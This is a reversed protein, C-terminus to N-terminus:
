GDIYKVNIVNNLVDFGTVQFCSDRKLLYEKENWHRRDINFLSDMDIYKTGKPVEIKLIPNNNTRFRCAVNYDTTTSIFSKDSYIGGKTTLIDKDAESLDPQLARYLVIDDQTRWFKNENEFINDLSQVLGELMQSTNFGKVRDHRLFNHLEQVSYKYEKLAKMDEPSFYKKLNGEDDYVKVDGTQNNLIFISSLFGNSDRLCKARMDDYCLNTFGEVPRGIQIHDSLHRGILMGNASIIKNIIGEVDEKTQPNKKGQMAVMARGYTENCLAAENEVAKSMDYVPKLSMCSTRPSDNNVTECKINSHIKMNLFFCNLFYFQSNSM